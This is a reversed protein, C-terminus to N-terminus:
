LMVYRCMIERDEKLSNTGDIGQLKSIIKRYVGYILLQIMEDMIKTYNTLLLQSYGINFNENIITEYIIKGSQFLGLQLTQFKINFIM